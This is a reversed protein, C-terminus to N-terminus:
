DRIILPLFIENQGEVPIEEDIVPLVDEQGEIEIRWDTTTQSFTTSVAADQPISFGDYITSQVLTTSLPILLTLASFTTGTGETELTYQGDAPLLWQFASVFNNFEADEIEKVYVGRDYGLRNGSSDRIIFHTPQDAAIILNDTSFSNSGSESYISGWSFVGQIVQEQSFLGLTANILDDLLEQSIETLSPLPNSAIASPISYDKLYELVMLDNEEDVKIIDATLTFIDPNMLYM